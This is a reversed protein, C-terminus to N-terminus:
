HIFTNKTICFFLINQFKRTFPLWLHLNKHHAKYLVTKYVREATLSQKCAASLQTYLFISQRYYIATSSLLAYVFHAKVSVTSNDCMHSVGTNVVEAM